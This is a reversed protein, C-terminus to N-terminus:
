TAKPDALWAAAADANLTLAVKGLREHGLTHLRAALTIRETETPPRGLRLEFLQLTLDLQPEEVNKRHWEEYWERTEMISEREEAALGETPVDFCLRILWQQAVQLEWADAPLARLDRQGDRRVRPSGLLRLLLTARTRPLESIVVVYIRWAGPKTAYVGPWRAVQEFGYAALVGDPRGACLLWLTPLPLTCKDRLELTHHWAYRKRVAAHFAPEDPADSFVEVAGAEEAMARLLGPEIEPHASLRAPDPVHWLDIRQADGPPVEVETEAWGILVFFDRLINKGLLDLRFQM